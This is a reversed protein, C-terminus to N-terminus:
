ISLLDRISGPNDRQFVMELGQLKTKKQHVSLLSSGILLFLSLAFNERVDLENGSRTFARGYYDFFSPFLGRKVFEHAFM